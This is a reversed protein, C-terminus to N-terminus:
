SARFKVRLVEAPVFFAFRAGLKSAFNPNRMLCEMWGRESLQSAARKLEGTCILNYVWRKTSTHIPKWCVCCGARRTQEPRQAECLMCLFAMAFLANFQDGVWRRIHIPFVKASSERFPFPPSFWVRLDSFNILGSTKLNFRKGSESRTMKWCFFTVPVSKPAYPPAFLQFIQTPTPWTPPTSFANMRGRESSFYIFEFGGRTSRLFLEGRDKCTNGNASHFHKTHLTTHTIIPAPGHTNGKQAVAVGSSRRSQKILGSENNTWASGNNERPSEDPRTINIWRKWNVGCVKLSLKTPLTPDFSSQAPNQM